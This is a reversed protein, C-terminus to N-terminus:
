GSATRFAARPGRNLEEPMFPSVGWANRLCPFSQALETMKERIEDDNM